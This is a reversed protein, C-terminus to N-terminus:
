GRQKGETRAEEEERNAREVSVMLSVVRCTRAVPGVSLGEQKRRRAGSFSEGPGGPHLAERAQFALQACLDACRQGHPRAALQQVRALVSKGYDDPM